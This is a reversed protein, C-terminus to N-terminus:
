LLYKMSANYGGGYDPSWILGSDSCSKELFNYQLMQFYSRKHTM